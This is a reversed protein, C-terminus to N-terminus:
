TCYQPSPRIATTNCQFSQTPYPVPAPLGQTHHSPKLKNSQKMMSRTPDEIDPRTRIAQQIATFKAQAGSLYYKSSRCDLSCFQAVPSLDQLFMHGCNPCKSRECDWQPEERRKALARQYPFSDLSSARSFRPNNNLISSTSPSSLGLFEETTTEIKPCSRVLRISKMLDYFWTTTM